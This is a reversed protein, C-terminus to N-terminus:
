RKYFVACNGQQNTMGNFLLVYYYDNQSSRYNVLDTFIGWYAKNSRRANDFMTLRRYGTAWGASGRIVNSGETGSAGLFAYCSPATRGYADEQAQTDADIVSDLLYGYVGVLTESLNTNDNASTYRYTYTSLENGNEDIWGWYVQGRNDDVTTNPDDADYDYLVRISGTRSSASSGYQIVDGPSLAAIVQEDTMKTKKGTVDTFQVTSDLPITYTLKASTVAVTTIVEIAKCKDGDENLVELGVRNILYPTSKESYKGIPDRYNIVISAFESNVDTNYFACSSDKDKSIHNSKEVTSYTFNRDIAEYKDTHPVSFIGTNSSVPYPYIRTEGNEPTITTGSVKTSAEFMMYGSNTDKRFTRSLKEGLIRLSKETEPTEDLLSATDIYNFEDKENLKYRFLRLRNDIVGGPAIRNYFAKDDREKHGDLTYRDACSFIKITGDTTFVKYKYKYEGFGINVQGLHYIYGTQWVETGNTVAIIEDDFGFYFTATMGLELAKGLIKENVKYETEDIGVLRNKESGSLGKVTGQISKTARYITVFNKSKSVMFSIIAKPEIDDLTESEKTELNYILVKKDLLSIEYVDKKDKSLGTAYIFGEKKDVSSVEANIYENVFVIANSNQEAGKVVTIQTNYNDLLGIIENRSANFDAEGNYILTPYNLSVSKVKNEFTFKIVDKNAGIFDNSSFSYIEMDRDDPIVLLVKPLMGDEMSKVYAKVRRGLLMSHGYDSDKADLVVKDITIRGKGPCKVDKYASTLENANFYGKIISVDYLREMLTETQYYETWGDSLLRAEYVYANLTRALLEVADAFTVPETVAKDITINLREACSMYEFGYGGRASVYEEYGLARVLIICAHQYTINETPRFKKDEDVKLINLKAFTHAVSGEETDEFIKEDTAKTIKMMSAVYEVFQQRTVFSNVNHTSSIIDLASLLQMSESNAFDEETLVNTGADLVNATNEVTEMGFVNLPCVLLSFVLIMILTRKMM